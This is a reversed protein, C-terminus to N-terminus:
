QPIFRQHDVERTIEAALVQGRGAIAPVHDLNFGIGTEVRGLDLFIIKVIIRHFGDGLDELAVLCQGGLLEAAGQVFPKSEVEARCAMTLNTFSGSPFSALRENSKLLFQGASIAARPRDPREAVYRDIDAAEDGLRRAARSVHRRVPWTVPKRGLRAAAESSRGASHCQHRGLRGAADGDAAIIQNRNNVYGAIEVMQEETLM